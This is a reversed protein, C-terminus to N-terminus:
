ASGKFRGYMATLGSVSRSSAPTPFRKCGARRKFHSLWRRFGRVLTPSTMTNGSSLAKYVFAFDEAEIKKSVTPSVLFVAVPIMSVDGFRVRFWGGDSVGRSSRRNSMVALWCPKM